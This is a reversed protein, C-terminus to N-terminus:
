SSFGYRDPPRASFRIQCAVGPAATFSVTGRLQQEGLLFILKLGLNGQTRFDFGAPTGIGNDGFQLEIEGSVTRMLRLNIQGPRNDPFAHELANSILENVILGCPIATDITVPLNETLALNWTIHLLATQALLGVLDHLYACLNLQTLDPSQYLKQHVIAMAQIRRSTDDLAKTVEANNSEAAQLTLLSQIAQMNNKTRHYV